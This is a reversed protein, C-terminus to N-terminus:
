DEGSLTISGGNFNPNKGSIEVREDMRGSGTQWVKLPFHEDLKGDIVEDAAQAIAKAKDAPLKGLEVNVQAAAKKLIGLARIMERPFIDNGIPFNELSRQTQAGWLKRDDVQIEGMSDKEMRSGM